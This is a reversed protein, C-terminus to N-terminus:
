IIIISKSYMLGFSLDLQRKTQSFAFEVQRKTPIQGIKENLTYL